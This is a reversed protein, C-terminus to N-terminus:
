PGQEDEQNEREEQESPNHKAGPGKDRRVVQVLPLGVEGKGPRLLNRKRGVVFEKAVQHHLIQNPLLEDDL